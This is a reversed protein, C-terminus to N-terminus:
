HPINPNMRYFRDVMQVHSWRTDPHNMLFHLCRLVVSTHISAMDRDHVRSVMPPNDDHTDYPSYVVPHAIIDDPDLRQLIPADDEDDIIEGAMPFPARRNPQVHFRPGDYVIPQEIPPLPGTYIGDQIFQEAGIEEIIHDIFNHEDVVRLEYNELSEGQDRVLQPYINNHQAMRHILSIRAQFHADTEEEWAVFDSLPHAQHIAFYDTIFLPEAEDENDNPLDNQERQQMFERIAPDALDEPQIDFNPHFDYEPPNPNPPLIRIYPM